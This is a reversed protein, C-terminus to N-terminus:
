ATRRNSAHTQDVREKHTLGAPKALARPIMASVTAAAGRILFQRRNSM